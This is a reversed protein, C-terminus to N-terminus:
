ANPTFIDKPQHEFWAFLELFGWILLALIVISLALMLLMRYREAKKALSIMFRIQAIERASLKKLTKHEVHHIGQRSKYDFELRMNPRKRRNSRLSAMMSGIHGGGFFMRTLIQRLIFIKPVEPLTIQFTFPALAWV